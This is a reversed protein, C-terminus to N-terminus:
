TGDEQASSGILRDLMLRKEREIESLDIGLWDALVQQLGQNVPVLREFGDIMRYEALVYPGDDLFRGIAEAEDRAARQKTHEPYPDETEPM